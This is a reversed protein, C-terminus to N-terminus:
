WWFYMIWSAFLAVAGLAVGLFLIGMHINIGKETEEETGPKIRYLARGPLIRAVGLLFLLPQFALLFLLGFVFPLGASVILVTAWYALYFLGDLQSSTRIFPSPEHEPCYSYHFESVHGPNGAVYKKTTDTSTCFPEMCLNCGEASEWHTVVWYAKYPVDMATLKGFWLLSVYVASVLVLLAITPIYSFATENKKPKQQSDPTIEPTMM